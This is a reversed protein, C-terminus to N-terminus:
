NEKKGFKVKKVKGDKKTAEGVKKTEEVSNEEDETKSAYKDLVSESAAM